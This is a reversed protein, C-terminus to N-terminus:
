WQKGRRAFREAYALGCQNCAVVPRAGVEEAHEEQEQARVSLTVTKLCNFCPRQKYNHPIKQGCALWDQLSRCVILRRETM